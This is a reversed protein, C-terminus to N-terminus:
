NADNFGGKKKLDQDIRVLVEFFGTLNKKIKFLEKKDLPRNYLKEFVEKAKDCSNVRM